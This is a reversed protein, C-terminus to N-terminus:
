SLFVYFDFLDTFIHRLLLKFGLSCIYQLKIYLCVYLSFRVYDM